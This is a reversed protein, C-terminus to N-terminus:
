TGRPSQLTRSLLIGDDDEGILEGSRGPWRIEPNRILPYRAVGRDGAWDFDIVKVDLRSEGGSGQVMINVPRLDGHVVNNQKMTNLLRALQPHLPQEGISKNQKQHKFLTMWGDSPDLYEMVIAIFPGKVKAKGFLV